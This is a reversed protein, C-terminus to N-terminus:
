DDDSVRLAHALDGDISCDEERLHHERAWTETFPDSGAMALLDGGIRPHVLYLGIRRTVGSSQVWLEATERGAVNASLTAVVRLITGLHSDIKGVDHLLAAAMVPRDVSGRLHEDVRKAVGISHRRDQRSMRRWLAVEGDLLHGTAWEDDDRRPALPWLSGIFRKTLHTASM